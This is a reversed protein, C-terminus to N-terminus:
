HFNYRVGIGGLMRASGPRDFVEIFLSAEAFLAIPIDEFSYEAGIIGEPGFDFDTVGVVQTTPNSEIDAYTYQVSAIKVMGGLGWYWNLKGTMDEIPVNFHMLYRGQFYVTSEVNHSLYIFKDYKGWANFQNQYYSRNWGPPVTGLTLEIANWKSIYKKYTLGTPSGVRLGIGQQTPYKRQAQLCFAALVFAITLIRKM